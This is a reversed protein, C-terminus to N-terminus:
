SLQFASVGSDLRVYTTVDVNTYTEAVGAADFLAYTTAAALTFQDNSDYYAVTWTDSESDYVVADNAGDWVKIPKVGSSTGADALELAWYVTLDGTDEIAGTIGSLTDSESVASDREWLITAVGSSDTFRTVPTLLEDNNSFAVAAGNVGVGYQDYVTGISTHAAGSGTSSALTYDSTQSLVLKAAVATTDLWNVRVPSGTGEQGLGSSKVTIVDWGDEGGTTTPDSQSFNFTSTGSADTKVTASTTSVLAGAKDYQSRTFIVSVDAKAVNAPTAAADRLQATVTVTEGFKVQQYTGAGVSDEVSDEVATTTANKAITTTVKFNVQATASGVVVNSSANVDNDFSTGTAATWAYFTRTKGDAVSENILALNGSGTTTFDVLDITCKTGVATVVNVSGAPCTGDANFAPKNTATEFRFVDILTNPVPLFASDRHTVSLAPTQAGFGGTDAANTQIVVGAPRTNTHNLTRNIFAAMQERTVTGSPDYTTATAGTTVGMYFLDLIATHAENIVNAIDTFVVHTPAAVDKPETGGPGEVAKDSYRALFLAMQERTVSDGPSYTTTSTGKSIGLAALQNIADQSGQPLASIDTFGQSSAAPVTIGSPGAARILFLAMQERTVSDGPSYTTASTGDTVGFYKICDIDDKAFSTSSVDTFGAAPAVGSPCAKYVALDASAKIDVAGAPAMLLAFLSALVALVTLTAIRSRRKTVTHPM